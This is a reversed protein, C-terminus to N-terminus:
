RDAPADDDRCSGERHRAADSGRARLVPTTGTTPTTTPTARAPGTARDPAAPGPAPHHPHDRVPHDGAAGRRAAARVALRPRPDEAPPAPPVPLLPQRLRDPRRRRLRGRPRPRGPRGAARLQSAPLQPRPAQHVPAAGCQARVPGGAAAPRAGCLRVPPRFGFRHRPPRPLWRPRDPGARHPERHGAAGRGFRRGGAAAVRRGTGAARGPLGRGVPDAAGAGQAATVPQGDVEAVGAGAPTLTDLPAVVTLQATVAPRTTDWPRLILDALVGTRLQGIPRPDGDNKRMWALEDVTSWCAAAIPSPLEVALEAMGDGTPHVRVDARQEAEVRRREAAAADVALVERNLRARLRGLSLSVADSLVRPAVTEAVGGATSGLVDVFMRARPWDLEGDALAAWVCPLREVLVYSDAALRAASRVTANTVVALEDVFFEDTGPIPGDADAGDNPRHGALGVVVAAEYAALVSKMRQIRELELAHEADSWEGVPLVETLRSPRAVAGPPGASGPDELGLPQVTLGVGYGEFV